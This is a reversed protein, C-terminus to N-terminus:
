EYATADLGDLPDGGLPEVAIETRVIGVTRLEGPIPKVEALIGMKRAIVYISAGTITVGFLGLTIKQWKEM